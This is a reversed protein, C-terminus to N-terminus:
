ETNVVTPEDSSLYTGQSSPQMRIEDYTDVPPIESTSELFDEFHEEGMNREDTWGENDNIFEEEQNWDYSVEEVYDGDSNLNWWAEGAGLNNPNLNEYGEDEDFSEDTDELESLGYIREELEEVEFVEEEEEEDDEEIEEYEDEKKESTKTPRMSPAAKFLQGFTINAPKDRIEAVISYPSVLPSIQPTDDELKKKRIPTVRKIIKKGELLNHQILIPQLEETNDKSGSNEGGILVANEEDVKRKKARTEIPNKKRIEVEAPAFISTDEERIGLYSHPGETNKTQNNQQLLNMLALLTEQSNADNPTNVPPNVPFVIPNRPGPQYPRQSRQQDQILIMKNIAETLKNLAVETGNSTLGSAQIPVNLQQVVQFPYGPTQELFAAYTPNQKYANEFAKAREYAAQLTNPTFLSVAIFLESRLGNLFMQAKASDPYQHGGAEVRCIMEEVAVHYADVNKQPLNANDNWRDIPPVQNRMTVWWTSASGKLKPVIVPIKRADTIRNAEFAKEVDELWSIPDQEGGMYEPYSVLNLEQHVIPINVQPPQGIQMQQVLQAIQNALNHMPNLHPPNQPPPPNPPLPPQAM